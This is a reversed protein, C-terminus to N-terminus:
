LKKIFSKESNDYRVDLTSLPIDIDPNFEIKNIIEKINDNKDLVYWKKSRDLDSDNSNMEPLIINEKHIETLIIIINNWFPTDDFSNIQNGNDNIYPMILITRLHPINDVKYHGTFSLYSSTLNHNIIKKLIPVSNKKYSFEIFPLQFYPPSFGNDNNYYAPESQITIISYKKLLNNIKILYNYILSTEYGGVDIKEVDYSDFDFGAPGLVPDIGEIILKNNCDNYKHYFKNSDIADKILNNSIIEKLCSTPLRVYFNYIYGNAGGKIKNQKLNIYKQKYKLYKKEYNM